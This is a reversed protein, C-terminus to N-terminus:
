YSNITLSNKRKNMSNGLESKTKTNNEEMRKKYKMAGNKGLLKVLEDDSMCNHKQEEIEEIQLKISQILNQLFQKRQESEILRINAGNEEEKYLSNGELQMKRNEMELNFYYIYENEVRNYAKLLKQYKRDHENENKDLGSMYNNNYNRFERLINRLEDIEDNQKNTDKDLKNIKELLENQYKKKNNIISQNITHLNEKQKLCAKEENDYNELLKVFESLDSRLRKKYKLIDDRNKKYQKTVKDAYKKFELLKNHLNNHYNLEERLTMVLTEKAININASKILINSLKNKSTETNKIIKKIEKIETHIRCLPNKLPANNQFTKITQFKINNPNQISLSFPGFSKPKKKFSSNSRYKKM